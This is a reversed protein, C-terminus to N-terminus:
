IRVFTAAVKRTICHKKAINDGVTACLRFNTGMNACTFFVIGLGRFGNYCRGKRDANGVSTIRALRMNTCARIGAVFYPPFNRHLFALFPLVAVFFHADFSRLFIRCYRRISM